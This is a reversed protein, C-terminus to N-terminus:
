TVRASVEGPGFGLDHKELAVLGHVAAIAAFALGTAAAGQVVVLVRRLAVRGPTWRSRMGLTGPRLAPILMAFQAVTVLLAFLPVLAFMVFPLWRVGRPDLAPPLGIGDALVPGLWQIAIAVVTAGCLATFGFFWLNENLLLFVIQRHEAGLAQRISIEGMRDVARVQFVGTACVLVLLFAIATALTAFTLRKRVARFLLSTPRLMITTAADM